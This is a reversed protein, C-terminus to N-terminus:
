FTHQYLSCGRCVPPPDPTDLRRRFDRYAEGCWIERFSSEAPNGLSIRDDGMVMETSMLPAALALHVWGADM